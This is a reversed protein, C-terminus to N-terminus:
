GARGEQSVRPAIPKAESRTTFDAKPINTPLSGRGFHLRTAIRCSAGLAAWRSRPGRRIPPNWNLPPRYHGHSARLDSVHWVNSTAAPDDSGAARESAVRGGHDVMPPVKQGTQEWCINLDSAVAGDALSSRSDIHSPRFVASLDRVRHLSNQALSRRLAPRRREACPSLPRSLYRIHDRAPIFCM